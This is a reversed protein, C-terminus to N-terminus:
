KMRLNSIQGTETNFILRTNAVPAMLIVGLQNVTVRDELIVDRSLMVKVNAMDPVRYMVKGEYSMSEIASQSPANINAISNLPLTQVSIPSGSGTTGVSLGEDESFKAVTMTTIEKNPIVYVSQVYTKVTRNGLFYSKYEEEMADIEDLMKQLTEASYSVEVFGTILDYKAKELAEIKAAIEKAVQDDTKGATSIFIGKDSKVSEVKQEPQSVVNEPYEYGDNIANGAAISRIIGQENVDLDVNYAGRGTGIAVYFTANPDPTAVPVMKVDLIKYESGSEEAYESSGLYRMAYDAYAGEEIRTEEITFDLRLVTQPLAYYLGSQQGPTANKSFTTTVQANVATGFALTFAMAAFVKNIFTNRM